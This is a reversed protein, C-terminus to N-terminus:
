LQDRDVDYRGRVLDSVAARALPTTEDPLDVPDFFDGELDDDLPATFVEADGYRGIRRDPAVDVEGRAPLRWGDEGPLLLVFGM